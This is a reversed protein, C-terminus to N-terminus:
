WVMVPVASAAAPSSLAAAGSGAEGAASRASMSARARLLGSAAM